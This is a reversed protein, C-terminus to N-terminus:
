SILWDLHEQAEHLRRSVEAFEELTTDDDGALTRLDDAIGQLLDAAKELQEHDM